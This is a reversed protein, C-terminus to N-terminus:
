HILSANSVHLMETMLRRDEEDQDKYKEKIKKLKRKQSQKGKGQAQEEKMQQKWEPLQRGKVAPQELNKQERKNGTGIKSYSLVMVLPIFNSRFLM